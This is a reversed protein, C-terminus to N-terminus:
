GSFRVTQVAKLVFYLMATNIPFMVCCKVLRVVMFFSTGYMMSLWLPTLVLEKLVHGVLVALVVRKLGLPRRYFMLGYWAGLLIKNLTFGFFFAGSPRLVYEILDGLGGVLAGVLPGYLMGAAAIALFSFGIELFNSIVIRFFDLLVDLAVLMGGGVMSRVSRIQAVAAKWYQIM